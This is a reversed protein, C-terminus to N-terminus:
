RVSSDTRWFTCHFSSHSHIDIAESGLSGKVELSASSDMVVWLMILQETIISISSGIIDQFFYLLLQGFKDRISHISVHIGSTHFDLYILGTHLTDFVFDSVQQATKKALIRREFHFTSKTPTNDLSLGRARAREPFGM